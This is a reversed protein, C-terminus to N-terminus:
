EQQDTAEEEINRLIGMSLYLFLSIGLGDGNQLHHTITVEFGTKNRRLEVEAKTESIWEVAAKRVRELDKDSFGGPDILDIQFHSVRGDFASSKKAM